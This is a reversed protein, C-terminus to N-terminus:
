GQIKQITRTDGPMLTGYKDLFYNLDRQCEMLTFQTPEKAYLKKLRTVLLSFSVMTFRYDGEVIRRTQFADVKFVPWGM